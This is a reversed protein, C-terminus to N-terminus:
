ITTTSKNTGCNEQRCVMGYHGGFCSAVAGLFFLVFILFTSMGLSNTVEQSNLTAQSSNGRKITTVDTASDNSVVVTTPSTIFNSYSSVYNVMHSALLVTLVLALCWTTFGYLVGLNRKVCHSQGLYGATFGAVYMSIVAGIVLGIFGGVALTIVGDKTTTVISLGIAMDFLNLLFSLGIGVFAGILVASWSVRKLCYIHHSCTATDHENLM